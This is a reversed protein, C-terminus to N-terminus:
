KVELLEVEFILGANPGIIDGTGREGYALESPIFLTRMGGVRMGVLGEDWGKIVQHAGLNFEFPRNRPRSSDFKTGLMGNQDLWGTYHVSVRKGSEALSGSGIKDDRYKLGSQTIVESGQATSPGKGESLVLFVVSIVGILAALGIIRQIM